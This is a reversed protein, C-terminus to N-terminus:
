AKLVKSIHVLCDSPNGPGSFFRSLAKATEPLPHGIGVARGYKFAHGELKRLQGIIYKESRHNDLFINRFAAPVHRRSAEKYAISHSSTFSDVFFLSNDEIVDLVENMKGRCETLRSGMHNNVGLAHPITYLNEDLIEEIRKAEYGVYLAGPGPNLRGNHPEMPQHLMIEHGKAYIEDALDRSKELKPLISFTIPVGLSLFRRTKYRSYGIDDIIIAIRPLPKEETGSFGFAKSVGNLGMLSGALFSASNVLFTRRNM